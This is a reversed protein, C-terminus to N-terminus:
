ATGKNLPAREKKAIKGCKDSKEAIRLISIVESTCQYGVM